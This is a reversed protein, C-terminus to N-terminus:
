RLCWRCPRGAARARGEELIHCHCLTCLPSPPGVCACAVLQAYEYANEAADEAALAIAAEDYENRQPESAIRDAEERAAAILARAAAREAM